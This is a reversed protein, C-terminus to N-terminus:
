KYESQLEGMSKRFDLKESQTLTKDAILTNIIAINEDIKKMHEQEVQTMNPKEEDLITSVVQMNTSVAKLDISPNLIFHAPMLIM